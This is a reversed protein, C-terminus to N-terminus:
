KLATILCDLLRNKYVCSLHCSFYTFSPVLTSCAQSPSLAASSKLAICIQNTKQRRTKIRGREIEGEKKSMLWTEKGKRSSRCQGEREKKKEPKMM